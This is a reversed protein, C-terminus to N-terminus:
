YPCPDIAPSDWAYAVSRVIQVQDLVAKDTEDTRSGFPYAFASVTYGDARLEDISPQVATAM